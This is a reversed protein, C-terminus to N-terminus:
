QRTFPNYSFWKGALSKHYGKRIKASEKDSRGSRIDVMELTLLYDRQTNHNRQTTGSTLKAFLLYDFPQGQQELMASFSRMHEPNFLMEPRLRTERLGAEVYRRSLADFAHSERLRADIQEYLQEKFDGIEEASYNEIGLFCVRKVPIVDPAYSTPHVHVEQRSLLKAVAEDVLPNFTESGAAHSGVLDTQNDQVLHGFQHARCGLSIGVVSGILAVLTGRRSLCEKGSM